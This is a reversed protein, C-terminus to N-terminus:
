VVSKRDAVASAVVAGSAVLTSASSTGPCNPLSACDYLAEHIPNLQCANMANDCMQRCASGEAKGDSGPCPPLDLACLFTRYANKCETSSGALFVNTNNINANYVQKLNNQVNVPNENELIFVTVTDQTPYCFGLARNPGQNNVEDSCERQPPPPTPCADCTTVNVYTCSNWNNVNSVMRFLCLGGPAASCDVNPVIFKQSFTSGVTPTALTFGANVLATNTSPNFNLTGAPNFTGTASSGGDGAVLKWQVTVETGIGWTASKVPTTPLAAVGCPNATTPNTNLPIPSIMVAHGLACAVLASLLLLVRMM